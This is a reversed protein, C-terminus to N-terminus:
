SADRVTEEIGAGKLDALVPEYIERTVPIRVGTARITGDLIRRAAFGAPLGVTRSMASDGGPEGYEITQAIRTHPVGGGDTFDVEHHLVLMDREGDAYRMTHQMRDVLVDARSRAGAAVPEESFLGMWELRDLVPHGMAFQLVRAAAERPSEGDRAGTARRMEEALTSGPLAADPADDIWRLSSLAAWTECWGPWRLSGRILVGLDELGYEDEFRLSDGNPYSELPGIGDIEVIRPSRFVDYAEVHAVEGNELFRAPRMGALVVGRPGWSLKYGFPNDNADPAPIGGCLSRFGTVKGGADRVGDIMRMGQMHDIGPDAGVENLLLVGARRAEGALARMEESVYSTTVFPKGEAVCAEAVRVHFTVPLLSIGLDCDKVVARVQGADSADVERVEGDPHGELLARGVDPQDTAVCVAHGTGLLTRIAPRSVMGSGFVAVRKM